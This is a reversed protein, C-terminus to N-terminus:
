DSFLEFTEFKALQLARATFVWVVWRKGALGDARRELAAWTKTSGAAFTIADVRYGTCAYLQSALDCGREKFQM